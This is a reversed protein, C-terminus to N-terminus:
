GKWCREQDEGVVEALVKGNNETIIGSHRARGLEGVGVDVGDDVLEMGAAGRQGAGQQASFQGAAEAVAASHAADVPQEALM